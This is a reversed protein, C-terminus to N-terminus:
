KNLIIKWIWELVKGEGAFNKEHCINWVVKWICRTLRTNAQESQTCRGQESWCWPSQSCMASRRWLWASGCWVWWRSPDELPAWRSGWSLLSRTASHSRDGSSPTACWRQVSAPCTLRFLSYCRSDLHTSLPPPATNSLGPNSSSTCKKIVNSVMRWDSPTQQSWM